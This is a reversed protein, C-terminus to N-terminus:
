SQLYATLETICSISTFWVGTFIEEMCPVEQRMLLINNELTIKTDQPYQLDLLQFFRPTITGTNDDEVYIGGGRKAHNNMIPHPHPDDPVNYSWRISDYCNICNIIKIDRM